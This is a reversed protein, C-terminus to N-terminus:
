PLVGPDRTDMSTETFLHMQSSITLSPLGSGFFDLRDLSLLAPGYLREREINCCYFVGLAFCFFLL